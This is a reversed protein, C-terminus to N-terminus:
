AHGADLSLNAIDIGMKTISKHWREDLPTNFMISNDAEITLWSNEAIEKELQGSDWAAYGLAVLYHIPAAETGLVTLIDKSTTMCLDATMRISSQYEDKPIHLVFGRDGAVPGGSLVQQKLSNPNVQPHVSVVEIQDLMKKVSVDLPANIMIGMAGEENHECIYIVAQAFYPDDMSPM